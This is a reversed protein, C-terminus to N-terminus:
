QPSCHILVENLEIAASPASPISIKTMSPLGVVAVRSM